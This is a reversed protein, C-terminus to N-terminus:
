LDIANRDLLFQIIGIYLIGNDDVTPMIDDRVIVIKKFSDNIKKLGRIEQDLKDRDAISYASQIYYKKSDKNAIFDIEYTTRKSQKNEDKYNFTVSGIDVLFGRYILEQYIINEMMHSVDLNRFNLRANRLGMDIYYYKVLSDIYEKGKIDYRKIGEILFSDNFYDLYLCITAPSINRGKISKLTNALKRSSTFSGISSSVVNLLDDLVDKDNKIKHRELIDDLYIEDFLSRLYDIKEDEGQLLSVYPMGGYRVYEEYARNKDGKCANYFEEFSLPYVKIQDGRGRFETIIDKSLMKSNSGTVYLDVNDIDMLDLVVDVFTIVDGKAYNNEEPIVKQIEDIFIYYRDKDIIKSRLFSYLQTPNRYRANSSKDLAIRIIHDDKIGTSILYEYYIKFLLFSKGSRRLGTIIKVRNNDKKKKLLELYHPREIM